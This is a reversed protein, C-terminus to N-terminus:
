LKLPRPPRAFDSVETNENDEVGRFAECVANEDRYVASTLPLPSRKRESM